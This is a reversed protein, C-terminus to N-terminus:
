KELTLRDLLPGLAVITRPDPATLHGDFADFAFAVAAAAAVILWRPPAPSSTGLLACLDYVPLIAGRFGALGLLSPSPSPLPVIRRDAHIAAVEALRVARSHEGARIALFGEARGAVAAPEAFGRDFAARLSAARDLDDSM